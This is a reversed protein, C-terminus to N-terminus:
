SDWSQRQFYVKLTEPVSSIFEEITTFQSIDMEPIPRLAKRANLLETRDHGEEEAIEILNTLRAKEKECADLLLFQHRTRAGVLDLYPPNVGDFAFVGDYLPYQENLAWWARTNAEEEESLTVEVGNVMKKLM